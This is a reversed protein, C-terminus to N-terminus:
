ASLFVNTRATTSYWVGANDAAASLATTSILASENVPCIQGGGLQTNIVALELTGANDILAVWLRAGVGNTQGM